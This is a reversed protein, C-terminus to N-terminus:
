GNPSLTLTGSRLESVSPSKKQFAHPVYVAKEFRVTYVARYAIGDQSEVIELVGPGLGKWPKATPPTGGFQAIGLANGMDEKVVTSIVSRQGYLPKEDAAPVRRVHSKDWNQSIQNLLARGELRQLLLEQALVQEFFEAVLEGALHVPEPHLM